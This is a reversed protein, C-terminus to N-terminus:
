CNLYIIYFPFLYNIYSSINDTMCCIFTYITLTCLMMVIKYSISYKKVFYMIVSFYSFYYICFGVFGLEVFFLLADNHLALFTDINWMQLINSVFGLGKGFSFVNFSYYDRFRAWHGVRGQTNIHFRDFLKEIGGSSCVYVWALMVMVTMAGIFALVKKTKRKNYRSDRKKRHFLSIVLISIIVSVMAIRKHAFFLAILSVIFEKYRKTYVFYITFAGIIFAYQSELLDEGTFRPITRVLFVAITAWFLDLILENSRQRHTNSIIVAGCPPLIYFIGEKIAQFSFSNFLAMFLGFAVCILSPIAIHFQNIRLSSKYKITYYSIWIFFILYKVYGSDSLFMLIVLLEIFKKITKRNIQCKMDDCGDIEKNSFVM